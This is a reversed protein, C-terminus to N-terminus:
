FKICTIQGWTSGHDGLTQYRRFVQLDWIRVEEDDGGSALLTGSLNFSFANIPRDHGELTAVLRYRKTPQAYQRYIPMSSVENQTDVLDNLLENIYSFM